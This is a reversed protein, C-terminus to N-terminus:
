SARKSGSFLGGLTPHKAQGDWGDGQAAYDYYEHYTDDSTALKNLVVGLISAQGRKLMEVARVLMKARTRGSEVVLVVGDIHGALVVPDTVSLIPPADVILLDAQSKLSELAKLMRSSGLLESPNPPLPGSSVLSLGEVNTSQQVQLSAPNDSLLLSTLGTRNALGFLRHLSPRRLDADVLIVRKGTQAIVVGLNAATTTAGAGSNPSAVMISHLPKPSASFQIGTRVMRYAESLPSRPISSVAGQGDMLDNSNFRRIGGLTSLGVSRKADNSTMITDDMRGLLYALIGSIFLGAVAALATNTLIQPRIPRIPVDAPEVVLVAARSRAESLRAEERNKMLISYTTLYQSHTSQLRALEARQAETITSTARIADAAQSIARIDRELDAIQQDMQQIDGGRDPYLTAVQETFVESTKNAIDRAIQPDTHEVAIVILQTDRVAQVDIISALREATYPLDLELNVEDLVPRKRMLEAYTRTLRDPNAIGSRAGSAYPVAPQSILLTASARYIPAIAQSALYAVAASLFTGLVILWLRKGLGDLHRRLEMLTLYQRRHGMGRTAPVPQM